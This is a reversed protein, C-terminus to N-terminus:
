PAKDRPYHQVITPFYETYKLHQYSKPLNPTSMKM